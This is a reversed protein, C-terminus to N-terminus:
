RSSGREITWDSLLAPGRADAGLELLWDRVMHNSNRLMTYPQPHHVFELELSPTEVRTARQADFQADLRRRLALAQRRSVTLEHVSQASGRLAAMTAPSELPTPYTRRGLAGQTPWFLARIGDVPGTNRLAYFNWDGYVYVATDQGPGPLALGPTRGFDMLAVTAPDDVSAPPRIHTTCAPLLLATAVITALAPLADM